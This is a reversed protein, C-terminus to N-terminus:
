IFGDNPLCAINAREANYLHHAMSASLSGLHLCHVMVLGADSDSDYEDHKLPLANVQLGLPESDSNM